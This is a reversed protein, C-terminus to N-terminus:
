DIGVRHVLVRMVQAFVMASPILLLGIGATYCIATAWRAVCRSRDLMEFYLNMQIRVLQRARRRLVELDDATPRAEHHDRYAKDDERAIEDGIKLRNQMIGIARESMYPEEGAVYEESSASRKVELPCRTIFITSAIAVFCLGCYIILLKTLTAGPAAGFM